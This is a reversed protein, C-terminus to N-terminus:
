YHRWASAIDSDEMCGPGLSYYSLMLTANGKVPELKRLQPGPVPVLDLTRCLQHDRDRNANYMFYKDSGYLKTSM